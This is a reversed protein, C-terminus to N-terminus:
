STIQGMLEGHFSYKFINTYISSISVPVDGFPYLHKLLDVPIISQELINISVDRFRANYHAVQDSLLCQLVKVNPTQKAGYEAIVNIEFIYKSFILLLHILSFDSHKSIIWHYLLIIASLFKLIKPSKAARQMCKITGSPVPLAVWIVWASTLLVEATTLTQVSTSYTILCRFM